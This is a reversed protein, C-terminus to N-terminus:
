QGIMIRLVEEDTQRMGQRAMRSVSRITDEPTDMVIGEGPAFVQGDMAMTHAMIAADVSSAIKAACSAKAGDCVLGSVTGLTNTITDTIQKRSGGNMYTIAAGSGCAASVAGCFASLKGIGSKLHIATLNSLALARYFKEPPLNLERAYEIVPLSVTMGQNGSGSNTVVPLECGSMRADSGAAARAKARTRVDSGFHRLLTSGVNAGYDHALGEAAIRSNCEIQRALVARVDELVCTEAFELISDITLFDAPAENDARPSYPGGQIYAGNRKVAVVNTHGEAIEVVASDGGAEATIIIHLCAVGPLMDVGCFGSRILEKGRAIQEGTADALVELKKDPNGAVVGLVAAAELGKQGGSNPVVAGKVNKIINGSAAVAIREPFRGLAKAALAGAYAVAIPETCGLAPVLEKKLVDVHRQYTQADM